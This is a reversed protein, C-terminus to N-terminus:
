GQGERIVVFGRSRLLRVDAVADGYLDSERAAEAARVAIARERPTTTAVTEARRAWGHQRTLAFIEGKTTSFMTVLVRVM